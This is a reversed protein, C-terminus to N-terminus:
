EYILGLDNIKFKFYGFNIKLSAVVYYNILLEALDNTSMGRLREKEVLNKLHSSLQKKQLKRLKNALISKSKQNETKAIMSIITILCNLSLEHELAWIMPDLAKEHYHNQLVQCTLNRVEENLDSILLHELFRFSKEDDFQIRNLTKLSEIRTDVNEANDVLASLLEIASQKDLDKNQLDQLIANPTLPM